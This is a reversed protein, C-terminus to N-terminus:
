LIAQQIENIAVKIDQANFIASGAVFIDCGVGRAQHATQANIGGDIEIKFNLQHAERYRKLFKIKNLTEPMFKQGGFGPSVSMVLVLDLTNLYPILHEVNTEPRISVGAKIGHQHISQILKEIDNPEQKPPENAEYHVTILDAGAKVFWPIFLEPSKVMLHCDFFSNTKKRISDLIVPGFTLNPVFHGDMVDVHLWQVGCSEVKQISHLLNSFDASLLSPALMPQNLNFIHERSM